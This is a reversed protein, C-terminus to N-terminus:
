AVEGVVPVLELLDKWLVQLTDGDDRVFLLLLGEAFYWHNRLTWPYVHQTTHWIEGHVQHSVIFQCGHYKELDDPGFPM